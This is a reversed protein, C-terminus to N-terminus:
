KKFKALALTGSPRTRAPLHGNSTPREPRSPPNPRKDALRQLGALGALRPPFTPLTASPTRRATAASAPSLKSSGAPAAPLRLPALAYRSHLSRPAFAYRSRFTLPPPPKRRAMAYTTRHRPMISPRVAGPAQAPCVCFYRATSPVARKPRGQVPLPHLGHLLGASPRLISGDILSSSPRSQAAQPAAQHSPGPDRTPGPAFAKQACGGVGVPGSM